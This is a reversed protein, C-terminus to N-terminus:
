VGDEEADEMTALLAEMENIKARWKQRKTKLAVVDAAVGKIIALFDEISTCALLSELAKIITYDSDALLSKCATIEGRIESKTM